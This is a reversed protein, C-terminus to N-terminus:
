PMHYFYSRLTDSAQSADASITITFTINHQEGFDRLWVFFDETDTESIAGLIKYLSDIYIHSIDYNGAHLGAIFGRLMTTSDLLYETANVLRIGHHIDYRLKTGKEILVVVGPEHDVSNNVLHIMQKTKGSGKLGMILRVM